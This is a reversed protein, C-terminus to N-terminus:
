DPTTIKLSGLQEPARNAGILRQGFRQFYAEDLKERVGIILETAEQIQKDGFGLTSNLDILLQDKGRRDGSLEKYLYDDLESETEPGGRVEEKYAVRHLWKTLQDFAEQTQAPNDLIESSVGAFLDIFSPLKKFEDGVGSGALIDVAASMPAKLSRVKDAYAAGRVAENVQISKLYSQAEVWQGKTIATEIMKGVQEKSVEARGISVPRGLEEEALQIGRGLEDIVQTGATVDEQLYDLTDLVDVHALVSYVDGAEEALDDLSARLPTQGSLFLYNKNYTDEIGRLIDQAAQPDYSEGLQASKQVARLAERAEGISEATGERGEALALQGSLAKVAGVGFDRLPSEEGDALSTEEVYNIADRIQESPMNANIGSITNTIIKTAYNREDKKDAAKKEMSAVSLKLFVDMLAGFADSAGYDLRPQRYTAM